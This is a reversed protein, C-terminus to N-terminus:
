AASRLIKGVVESLARGDSTYRDNMAGNSIFLHVLFSFYFQFLLSLHADIDQLQWCGNSFIKRRITIKLYKM